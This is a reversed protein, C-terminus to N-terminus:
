CNHFMYGSQQDNQHSDWHPPVIGRVDGLPPPEHSEHFGSFVVTLHASAGINYFPCACDQQKPCKM